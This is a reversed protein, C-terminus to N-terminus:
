VKSLIYNQIKQLDGPLKKYEEKKTLIDKLSEPLFDGARFLLSQGIYIDYSRKGLDITVIKTGM